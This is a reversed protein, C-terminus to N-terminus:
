EKWGWINEKDRLRVTYKAAEKPDLSQITRYSFWDLVYKGSTTEILRGEKDRTYTFAKAEKPTPIRWRKDDFFEKPIRGGEKVPLLHKRYSKAFEQVRPSAKGQKLLRYQPGGLNHVLAISELDGAIWGAENWRRQYEAFVEAGVHEGREIDAYKELFFPRSHKKRGPNDRADKYYSEWVQLDGRARGSDGRTTFRKDGRFSGTEVQRVFEYARIRNEQATLPPPKEPDQAPEQAKEPEQKKRSSFNLGSLERVTPYKIVM